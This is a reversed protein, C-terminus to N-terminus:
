DSNSDTKHQNEDLLGDQMIHKWFLTSKYQKRPIKGRSDESALWLPPVEM